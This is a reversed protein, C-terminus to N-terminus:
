LKHNPSIIVLYNYDNVIFLFYYLANQVCVYLTNMKNQYLYVYINWIFVYVYKENLESFCTANYIYIYVYM